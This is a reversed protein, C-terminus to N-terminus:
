RGRLRVLAAEVAAERERAAVADHEPRGDVDTSIGLGDGLQAEAAEVQANARAFLSTGVALGPIPVDEPTDPERSRISAVALELHRGAARFALRAQDLEAIVAARREADPVWAQSAQSGQSAHSTLLRQRTSSRAYGPGGLYGCDRCEYVGPELDVLVDSGCALCHGLEGARTLRADTRLVAGVGILVLPWVVMGLMFGAEGIAGGVFMTAGICVLEVVVGLAILLGAVSRSVYLKGSEWKMRADEYTTSCRPPAFPGSAVVM